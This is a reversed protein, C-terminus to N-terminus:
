LAALCKRGAAAETVTAIAALPAHSVGISLGSVTRVRGSDHADRGYLCPKFIRRRATDLTRDCLRNHPVRPLAGGATKV